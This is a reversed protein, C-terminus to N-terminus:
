IAVDVLRPAEEDEDEEEVAPTIMIKLAHNKSQHRLAENNNTILPDDIMLRTVISGQGQVVRM